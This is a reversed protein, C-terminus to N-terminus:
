LETNNGRALAGALVAIVIFSYAMPITTHSGNKGALEKMIDAGATFLKQKQLPSFIAAYVPGRTRICWFTCIANLSFALIGRPRGHKKYAYHEPTNIRDRSRQLLPTIHGNSNIYSM